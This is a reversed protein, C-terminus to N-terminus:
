FSSDTVRLRIERMEDLHALFVEFLEPDFQTGALERMMDLAVHEEFASKYVRSHVLADYVDVIAVIRASVPIEEGRLGNPYGDGDWREHHGGAIEAAVKLM